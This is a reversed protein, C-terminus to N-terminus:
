AERELVGVYRDVTHSSPKPTTFLNCFGCRMECFPVHIYLFLARKDEDRWVDGLRRPPELARYATKHPYSYVYADYPTNRLRDSLSPVLGRKTEVAIVPDVAALSVRDRLSSSRM